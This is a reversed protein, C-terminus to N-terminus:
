LCDWAHCGDHVRSRSLLQADRKGRLEFDFFSSLVYEEPRSPNM